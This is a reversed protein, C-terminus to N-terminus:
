GEELAADIMAQWVARSREQLEQSSTEGEHDMNAAGAGVMAKSPERIAQLVARCDREFMRWAPQGSVVTGMTDRELDSRLEDPDIGHIKCLARAARELPTM